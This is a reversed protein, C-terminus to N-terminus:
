LYIRPAVMQISTLIAFPQFHEYSNEMAIPGALYPFESAPIQPRETVSCIRPSKFSNGPQIKYTGIISHSAPSHCQSRSSIFATLKVKSRRVPINMWGSIGTGIPM